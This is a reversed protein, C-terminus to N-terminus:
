FQFRKILKATDVMLQRDNMAFQKKNPPKSPMEEIRAM